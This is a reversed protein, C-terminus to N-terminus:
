KIYFTVIEYLPYLLGIIAMWTLWKRNRELFENRKKLPVKGTFVLLTFLLGILTMYDTVLKAKEPSM